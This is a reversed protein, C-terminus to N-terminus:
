FHDINMLLAEDTNTVYMPESMLSTWMESFPIVSNLGAYDYRDECAYYSAALYPSVTCAGDEPFSELFQRLKPLDQGYDYTTLDDESYEFLYDSFELNGNNGKKAQTLVLRDNKYRLLWQNEEYLLQHANEDSTFGYFAPRHYILM